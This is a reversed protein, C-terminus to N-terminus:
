QFLNRKTVSCPRCDRMRHEPPRLIVVRDRHSLSALDAHHRERGAFRRGCDAGTCFAGLVPCSKYLRVPINYLLSTVVTFTLSTGSIADTNTVVPDGVRDFVVYQEYDDNRQAM